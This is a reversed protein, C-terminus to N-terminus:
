RDAGAKDRTETRLKEVALPPDCCQRSHPQRRRDCFASAKWLKALMVACECAEEGRNTAEGCNGKGPVQDIPTM